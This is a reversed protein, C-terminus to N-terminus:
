RGGGANTWPLSSLIATKLPTWRGSSVWGCWNLGNQRCCDHRM